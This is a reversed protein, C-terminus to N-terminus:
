GITMANDASRARRRGTAPPRLEPVTAWRRRNERLGLKGAECGITKPRGYPKGPESSEQHVHCSSAMTLNEAIEAGEEVGKGQGWEGTAETWVGEKKGKECAGRRM